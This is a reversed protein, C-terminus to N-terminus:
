VTEATAAERLGRLDVVPSLFHSSPHGKYHRQGHGAFSFDRAAALSRNLLKAPTELGPGVAYQPPQM